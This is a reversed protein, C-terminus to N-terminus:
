QCMGRLIVELTEASVTEPLEIAIGKGTIRIVDIPAKESVPVKPRVPVIEHKETQELLAEHVKRLWYYFTKINAGNETCWAQVTKGSAQYEEYM